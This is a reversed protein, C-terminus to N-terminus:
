ILCDPVELATLICTPKECHWWLMGVTWEISVLVCVDLRWMGFASTQNEVEKYIGVSVDETRITM